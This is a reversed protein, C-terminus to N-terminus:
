LHLQPKVTKKGVSQLLQACFLTHILKNASDTTKMKSKASCTTHIAEKQQVQLKTIHKAKIQKRQVLYTVEM